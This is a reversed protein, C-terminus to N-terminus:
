RLRFKCILPIKLFYVVIFILWFLSWIQSRLGKSVLRTLLLRLFIKGARKQEVRFFFRTPKEGEIWQARSRIKAGEAEMSIVSALANELDRVAPAVRVDGSHLANKARILQKTLSSREANLKQHKCISFNTSIKRFRCKLDDWWDGLSAFNNVELKCMEIEDTILKTFDSDALLSSNFKWIESRRRPAGDLSFVLDVFDHDSFVCPLISCSQVEDTLFRSVLFRDLRSAQTKAANSWTFSVLRPHCKRWVDVLSFDSKFSGLSKKDTVHIDNSRFKDIPIEVCNFDGGIILDGRSLFYDHLGEFFIKRDSISNPAYVNVLNFSANYYQVLGSLIRGDSDFVYRSIKGSFSPSFLVAVGASRGTGFSWLCQGQWLKQFADVHKKCSGHTEQLFFVNYDFRSLKCSILERKSPSVLGRVNISICKLRM